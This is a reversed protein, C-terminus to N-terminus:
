LGPRPVDLCNKELCARESLGDKFSPVTATTRAPAWLPLLTRTRLCNAEPSTKIVPLIKIERSFLVIERSFFEIKETFYLANSNLIRIPHGAYSKRTDPDASFNTLTRTRLCNAEPSTKIVPLIEIERSSFSGM